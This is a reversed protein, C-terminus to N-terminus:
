FEDFVKVRDFPYTQELHRVRASDLKYYDCYSSFPYDEPRDAVGHRVPNWHIYNLRAYYSKENTICTDWYNWWVKRGPCRALKNLEIASSSHLKKLLWPLSSATDPAKLLMHYHNALIVWAILEWKYRDIAGRLLTLLCSKAKDARMFLEKQFTGATVMYTAKSLFYHAPAHTYRKIANEM